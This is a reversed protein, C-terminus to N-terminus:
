DIRLYPSGILSSTLLHSWPSCSTRVGKAHVDTSMEGKQCYVWPWTMKLVMLEKHSFAPGYRFGLFILLHSQSGLLSIPLMAPRMLM